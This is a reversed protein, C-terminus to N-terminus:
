KIALFFHKPKILFTIHHLQWILLLLIISIQPSHTHSTHDCNILQITSPFPSSAPPGELLGPLSISTPVLTTSYSHLWRPFSLNKLFIGKVNKRKLNLKKNQFLKLSVCSNSSSFLYSNYVRWDFEGNGSQWIDREIWMCLCMCMWLINKRFWKLIIQLIM